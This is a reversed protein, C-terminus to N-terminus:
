AAFPDDDNEQEEDARAAAAADDLYRLFMDLYTNQEHSLQRYQTGVQHVDGIATSWMVRAPLALPESSREADFVLTIRVDIEQGAALASTTELCLGGKSVNKSMGRLVRADDTVLEVEAKVAFRPFVRQNVSM